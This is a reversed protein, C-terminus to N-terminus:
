SQLEQVIRQLGELLAISEAHFPDQVEHNNCGWIQIKKHHYLLYATGANGNSQWSPDVMLHWDNERIEYGQALMEIVNNRHMQESEEGRMWAEVAKLIKGPDFQVIDLPQDHTRLALPSGAKSKCWILRDPLESLEVPIPVENQITVAKEMGFLRQLEDVNWTRDHNDVLQQVKKVTDKRSAERHVEWSSFWPQSLAYAKNGDMIEWKIDQKFFNRLKVVERWLSSSGKTNSARWFGIQPYYKAQCIQVWTKDSQSMLDWANKLFIADGFLQLNRVGQGGEGCPRCVSKWFIFTMYRTKDVKSWFFKAVLSSIQKLIGRPLRETAMFYVPLSTLVSKILVLRGAHSLMACKWGTLKGWVRDLLMKATQKACGTPSLYAGLYKEDRKTAEAQFETKVVERASEDYGKTFWLKSKSPNIQLGSIDGFMEFTAKLEQIEETEAVRNMFPKLRRALIKMLLRYVVNELSIPRYDSPRELEAGKPILVVNCKLWKSPIQGTSFIRRIEAVLDMGIVSWNEQLFRPTAGDPGSSKDPSMLFLARRIEHYDPLYTLVAHDETKIKYGPYQDLAHFFRELIPDIDTHVNTNCEPSYLKKFYSIFEKRIKREDGTFEGNEEKVM